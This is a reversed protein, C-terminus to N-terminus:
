LTDKGISQFNRVIDIPLRFERPIGLVSDCGIQVSRGNSVKWALHPALFSFASTLSKWNNSAM